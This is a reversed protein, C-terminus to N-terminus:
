KVKKTRDMSRFGIAAGDVEVWDTDPDSRFGFVTGQKALRVRRGGPGGIRLTVTRLTEDIVDGALGVIGADNARLVTAQMGILEGKAVKRASGQLRPVRRKM